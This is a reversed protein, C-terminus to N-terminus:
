NYGYGNKIYIYIYIFMAGKLVINSGNYRTYLRLTSKKASNLKKATM